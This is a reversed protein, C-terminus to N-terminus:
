KVIRLYSPLERKTGRGESGPTTGSKLGPPVASPEVSPVAVETPQETASSAEASPSSKKTRAGRKKKKGSESSGTPLAEESGAVHLRPRKDQPKATARGEAAAAVEAPVSDPWIMGRGDDGVLGYIASWPIWCYEPKRNFSLTCTLAENGVDLDPIPVALNLGVQLVLQPQKKFWAPVRVEAPRPDLHVYVSMATQLLALAVEPKPPLQLSDSMRFLQYGEKSADAM